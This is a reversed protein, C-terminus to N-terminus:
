VSYTNLINQSLMHSHTPVNTISAEMLSNIHSDMLKVGGKAAVTMIGRRRGTEESQYMYIISLSGAPKFSSFDDWACPGSLNQHLNINHPHHHHYFLRIEVQVLRLERSLRISHPRAQQLPKNGM